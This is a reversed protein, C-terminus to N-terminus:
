RGIGGGEDRRCVGLDDRDGGRGVPIALGATRRAALEYEQQEVAIAVVRERLEAVEARDDIDRSRAHLDERRIGAAAVLVLAPRAHRGRM